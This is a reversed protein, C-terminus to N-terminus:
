PEATSLDPLAAPEPEDPRVEGCRVLAIRAGLPGFLEFVAVSALVVTSITPAIAPFREVTVLVLGIALGAQSFMALGIFQRVSHSFGLATASGRAGAFKGASRAVIYIGGLLGLSPLLALNLDAGAIVFFIAYLPPDTKSLADFLGRSNGSLNVMTAGVALSAILPSLELWKSVGVCLLVSGAMLILTEGHEKVRSAWASLLLGVLYGLAVSGVLQWVLPFVVNRLAAALGAGHTQGASLDVLAAALSFCILCCINNLAIVNTLIETLEGKANCERIVMLTSAAATEMSIAGLLLCVTWPQGAFALGSTVLIGTLLSEAITLLVARRGILRFRNREFVSGISFLILGLAVESFVGLSILNEHTIWGLASPGVMVGALIYGTVEPVRVYKVLHGALLAFLLIIGLSALENM